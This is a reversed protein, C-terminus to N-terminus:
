LSVPSRICRNRAQAKASNENTDRFGSRSGLIRSTFQQFLQGESTLRVSKNDREFLAHGLDRELRQIARSLASASVHCDASTHGFHLSRSLHLFLRLEDFNM